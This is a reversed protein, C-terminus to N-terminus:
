LVSYQYGFTFFRINNGSKLGSGIIVQGLREVGAFEAYPNFHAPQNPFHLLSYCPLDALKLNCQIV